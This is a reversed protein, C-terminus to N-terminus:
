KARFRKIMQSSEEAEASGSASPASEHSCMASFSSLAADVVDDPIEDNAHDLDVEKWKIAAFTSMLVALLVSGAMANGALDM